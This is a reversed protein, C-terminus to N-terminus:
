GGGGRGGRFCVGADGYVIQVCSFDDPNMASRLCAIRAQEMDMAPESGKHPFRFWNSKSHLM